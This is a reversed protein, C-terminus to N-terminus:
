NTKDENDKREKNIFREKGWIKEMLSLSEGLPLSGEKEYIAQMFICNELVADDRVVDTALAECSPAGCAGCDIGPLIDKIRNAMEMKKIAKELDKDYKVMSRAPISNIFVDSYSLRNKYDAVLDHTSKNYDKALNRLRDSMIFRNNQNLIGGACSEDCIKLEVYDFDEGVEDDEMRELFSMVNDLGDVAITRGKILSIEGSTTSWLIGKSSIQSSKYNEAVYYDKSKYIRMVKNYIVDMNIVGDIPSEYGGLPSKISAIKAICPTVYFIGLSKIDSYKKRYYIATNELPPVVLMLNDLLMPFRVQILRIVAPCFCSIVPKDNAMALYRNMADEMIDVSQEAIIIESFGLKFLISDVIERTISKDFQTYFLAPVLLLRKDFKYIDNFDDDDVKIARTPCVKYCEGCEVCWDAYLLAKGGRVRLAETPCVKMCHSCGICLDTDIRLTRHFTNHKM